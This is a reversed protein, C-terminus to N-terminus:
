IDANRGRLSVVEGFSWVHDSIGAEMAPTVAAALRVFCRCFQCSLGMADIDTWAKDQRVQPAAGNGSRAREGWWGLRTWKRSSEIVFLSAAPNATQEASLRM